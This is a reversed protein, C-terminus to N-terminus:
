PCLLENYAAAFEVFDSDDVAADVNLDALCGSAMAPDLCDLVNYAGAFIVFDADDVVGDSNLDAPCTNLQVYATADDLNIWGLNESWAFGSFRRPIAAAIKAPKPPTAMAGGGFNVWGANESWAYGGLNGTVADLNVGYDGSNSNAYSMGNAPSGDGVTIWGLNEAWINGALYTTFVRVGQTGNAADLWNMWGCNEQWSLKHEPSVRLSQAHATSAVLSLALITIRTSM